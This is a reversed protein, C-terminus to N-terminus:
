VRERCSARGIEFYGYYDIEHPKYKIDLVGDQNIDVYSPYGEFFLKNDRQMVLQVLANKSGSLFLPKDPLNLQAAGVPLSAVLALLAPLAFRM